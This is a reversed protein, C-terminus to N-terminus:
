IRRPRYPVRTIRRAVMLVLLVAIIGVLCAGVLPLSLAAAVYGVGAVV